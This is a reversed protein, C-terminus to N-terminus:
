RLAWARLLPQPPRFLGPLLWWRLLLSLLLLLLLLLLLSLLAFPLPASGAFFVVLPPVFVCALLSLRACPTDSRM